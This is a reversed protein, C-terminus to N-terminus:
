PYEIILDADNSAMTYPVEIRDKYKKEERIISYDYADVTDSDFIFVYIKQEPQSAICDRIGRIEGVCIRLAAGGEIYLNSLGLGFDTESIPLLSDGPNNQHCFVKLGTQNQSNNIKLSYWMPEKPCSTLTLILPLLILLKVKEM